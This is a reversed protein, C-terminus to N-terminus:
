EADVCDYQVKWQILTPSAKKDGTPNLTITMRLINKSIVPPMATRLVGGTTTDLLAVDWDPVATSTTMTVVPVKQATTLDTPTDATQAQFVISATSPIQDQWDFERWAPRQGKGCTSTFDQTFTVPNYVTTPAPPVWNDPSVCATLDFLM